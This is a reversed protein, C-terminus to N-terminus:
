LINSSLACLEVQFPDSFVRLRGRPARERAINLIDASTEKLLSQINDVQTKDKPIRSGLVMSPQVVQPAPPGLRSHSGAALNRRSGVLNTNSLALERNRQEMQLQLEHHKVRHWFRAIRNLHRKGRLLSFATVVAFGLGAVALTAWASEDARVASAHLISSTLMAVSSAAMLGARSASVRPNYYVQHEVFCFSLYGLIVVGSLAFLL